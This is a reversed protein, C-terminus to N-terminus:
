CCTVATHATLTLRLISLNNDDDDDDDDFIQNTKGFKFVSMFMMLLRRFSLDFTDAVSTECPLTTVSM